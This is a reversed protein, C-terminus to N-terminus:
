FSVNIGFTFKRMMPYTLGGTTVGTNSGRSKSDPHIGDPLHNFSLLNEGSVFVSMSGIGSKQLLTRPISYSLVVSKLDLYSADLLYRTQVQNNAGSNAGYGGEYRRTFYSNQHEPSWYDLLNSYLSYDVGGSTFPATFSNWLWLDRKGVGQLLFSLDFGKWSVNGNIGFTYRPTNNGIIRRSGPNDATNDSKWILGNEDAYKYLMDGPNPNCGDFRPIGDKLTGGSLEGEGTTKLTGEVFDDVTYLRDSVYGWIEGMEMGEYYNMDLYTMSLSKTPNNFKTIKSKADSLNFGIGYSIEGIKDRWNLQLEWGDTRANAANQLPSGAGLTVPYDSGPGLMNLTERRFVDFSGTLRDNFFGWDVGVNTTRVEEWTFNARVLSPTNLTLPKDEGVGWNAKVSTMTPLYQYESINQNGISGWSARLKLNSLFSVNRLFAEQNIRWGASFSPFFGFRHGEPFKSSGDYRGSAELLYRDKLSYNVRYFAGFIANENYGDSVSPVNTALSLAPLEDNIMNGRSAALDENYYKEMNIGGTVTFEHSNIKKNYTAFLNLANYDTSTKQFRYTSYPENPPLITNDRGDAFDDIRNNFEKQSYFTKNISYEGTVTLGELPKLILRGLMNLRDYNSETPVASEMMHVPTAYRYYKDNLTIGDTPYFSPLSIAQAWVDRGNFKLRYPDQKDSHTYLTTLEATLWKTVDSSLYSTINYRKYRDKNTVLVGDQDLYSASLRYKTNKSGGSVAVDYMQQFGTSMLDDTVDSAALQYRIGGIDAYGDPYLSPDGEYQQLLKEWEVFSQGGTFTKYNAALMAQITQLPTARKAMSQPNSLSLKTSFTISPKQEKNAKKTTILVVGFAARAGYIAASSADKLVSVSEIDNPNLSSVDIAIGDVLILPSSGNISSTGRIMFDYGSGPEGSNGSLTLGPVNGMLADAISNVPRNAAIEDMKVQSVSGTLNVKKQTGYGVVVVEDLTKSDETLNVELTKRGKVAVEQTSYGIYSFVLTSSAPVELKFNGDLDTITGVTTNEKLVVSVGILPENTRADKVRGTLVNQASAVAPLLLLILFTMCVHKLM